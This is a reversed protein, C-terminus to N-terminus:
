DVESTAASEPEEGGAEEPTVEPVDVPEIGNEALETSGDTSETQEIKQEEPTEDGWQVFMPMIAVIPKNGYHFIVPATKEGQGMTVFGSKGDLYERLYALNFAVRGPASGPQVAIEASVEGKEKSKASVTMATETWRLRVIGSGDKAIDQLRRVANFLEPAMFRVKNPEQFNSLFLLHDPPNGSILKCVLTINGFRAEMYNADMVGSRLSLKLQRAATIQSVLSDGVPM